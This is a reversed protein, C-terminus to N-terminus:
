RSDVFGLADKLRAKLDFTQSGSCAAPDKAVNYRHADKPISDYNQKQAEASADGYNILLVDESKIVVNAISSVKQGNLLFILHKGDQSNVYVNRGDSIVNDGLSYGLNAFFDGWTVDDDHVHITHNLNDHMHARGKVDSHGHDMCASVEEFYGPGEFTDQKGNIYVAFNAHYHLNPNKAM